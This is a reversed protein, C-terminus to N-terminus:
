KYQNRRRESSRSLPSYSNWACSWSWYDTWRSMGPGWPVFNSFFVFICGFNSILISPLYWMWFFLHVNLFFLACILLVCVLVSTMLGLSGFGANIFFFCNSFHFNNTWLCKWVILKVKCCFQNWVKLWSIVKSMEMMIRAHGFMAGKVRWLTLLWTMSLVINMGIYQCFVSTVLLFLENIYLTSTLFFIQIEGYELLRLSLSGSQNM